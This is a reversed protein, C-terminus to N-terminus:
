SSAPPPASSRPSASTLSHVASIAAVRADILEHVHAESYQSLPVTVTGRVGDSTQFTVLMADEFVGNNNVSTQRQGVVQWSQAM